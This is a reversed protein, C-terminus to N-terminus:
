WLGPKVHLHAGERRALVEDDVAADHQGGDDDHVRADNGEDPKDDVSRLVEM